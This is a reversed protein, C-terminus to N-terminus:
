SITVKEGDTLNIIRAGTYPTHEWNWSKIADESRSRRGTHSDCKWCVVAFTKGFTDVFQEICVHKVTNCVRCKVLKEPM